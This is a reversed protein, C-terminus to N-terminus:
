KAYFLGKFLEAYKNEVVKISYHSEVLKRSTEKMRNLLDRNDYLFKIDNAISSAQNDVVSFGIKNEEILM